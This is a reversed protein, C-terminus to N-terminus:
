QNSLGAKEPGKEVDEPLRAEERRPPHPRARSALLDRDDRWWWGRCRGPREGEMEVGVARRGQATKEGSM